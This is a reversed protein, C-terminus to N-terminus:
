WCACAPYGRWGPPRHVATRERMAVVIEAGALASVVADDDALPERVTEVRCRRLRGWDAYSMAVGQYDDLVVCRMGAM